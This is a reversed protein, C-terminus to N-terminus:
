SDHKEVGDHRVLLRRPQGLPVSRLMFVDERGREFCRTKQSGLQRELTSEGNSGFVEVFM